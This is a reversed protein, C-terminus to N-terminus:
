GNEPATKSARQAKIKAGVVGRFVATERPSLTPRPPGSQADTPSRGPSEYRDILPNANLNASNASKSGGSEDNKRAHAASLQRGMEFLLNRQDSKLQRCIQLLDHEWGTARYMTEGQSLTRSGQIEGPLHIVGGTLESLLRLVTKSVKQGGNIIRNVTVRNLDLEKAAQLQTWGAERVLRAFEENEPDM